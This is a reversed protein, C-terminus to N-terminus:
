QITDDLGDIVADLDEIDRRDFRPALRWWAAPQITLSDATLEYGRYASWPRLHRHVRQDVLLGADTARVTRPNLLHMFPTGVLLPYYLVWGWDRGFMLAAVIGVGTAGFTLVLIVTATRRWRLPWRAEWEVLETATALVANAHRTRSMSVLALGVFTGSGTGVFSLLIAIGPPDLGGATAAAVALVWMWPLAVLLWVADHRGLRVALDTHRGVVLAVVVTCGIVALLFGVYLGGASDTIRSLGLSILPAILAAAYLGVAIAYPADARSGVPIDVPDETQVGSSGEEQNNTSM